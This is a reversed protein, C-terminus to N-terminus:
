KDKIYTFIENSANNADYRILPSPIDENTFSFVFVQNDGHSSSAGKKHKKKVLDIRKQLKNRKTQENKTNGPILKLANEMASIAKEYDGISQYLLSM